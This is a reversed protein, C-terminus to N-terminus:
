MAYSAPTCYTLSLQTSRQVYEVFESDSTQMENPGVVIFQIPVRGSPLRSAYYLIQGLAERVCSTPSPSSKVEVVIWKESLKVYLDIHCFEQFVVAGGYSSTLRARMANQLVNHVRKMIYAGRSSVISQGTNKDKSQTRSVEESAVSAYRRFIQAIRDKDTIEHIAKGYGLPFEIPEQEDLFDVELTHGLDDLLRYCPKSGGRVVAYRTIVLRPRQQIPASHAKLAILDGPRIGLFRVLTQVGGHESEPLLARLRAEIKPKGAGVLRRLDVDAAFGTSIVSHEIMLPLVDRERGYKTGVIYYRPTTQM